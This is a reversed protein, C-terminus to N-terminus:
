RPSNLNKNNAIKMLMKLNGSVNKTFLVNAFYHRFKKREFQSKNYNLNVPNLERKYGDWGTLWIPRQVNPNFEGRDATIDWFQNIRYKQEVKEFAIDISGGNVSPYNLRAFPDNKPSININLLGSVQETNYVVLSDFNADLVHFRDIGEDDYVYAEMFYEISRLTNVAQGSDLVYEVQFPYDVGYYNCYKDTVFNHRWFTNGKTSIFNLRSPMSLDPHWDHFSLWADIKPDYSITWSVDNFFRPDGLLIKTFGNVSFRIGGNYTVVTNAPLDKRLEYDKKCFYLLQDDNDYISQCGVGVVPNDIVEFDPFDQTIRFPLFKAFWWRMGKASLENLGEVMSFIKGQNQSIWYLGVPTNLISFRDQCSAYEYPEDTNVVSQLPQNFLAGDGITLKTGIDTQLTETGQIMVPSDNEFLIIAGSKGISKVATVRSKFDKYNNQLFVTWFDKNSELNDPLSYSIRNPLYQYCLASVIPNYNRDQMNGWSITNSYLRSISLSPNIKFYNGAKIINTDFLESLSDLIPFFKEPDTEGWDRQDVNIESEVFFDRVGSQFLYFYANKRSFRLPSENSAADGFNVLGQWVGNAELAGDLNNTNAPTDWGTPDDFSGLVSFMFGEIDYKTLNAWFKPYLGLYRLTYDFDTGDPVNYLWDAFYFFTNKETYRGIYTDGGFLIPSQYTELFITVVNDTSIATNPIPVNADRNGLQTVPCPVPIQRISDLQGYQNRYRLKMGGYYCSATSKFSNKYTEGWTVNPSVNNGISNCSTDQLSPNTINRDVHLAVTSSRYLNNVRRNNFTNFQNDLYGSDLIYSRKVSNTNGVSDRHLIGHSVYRVAYQRYRVMAYILELNADTATSTYNFFTVIGAATKFVSPLLDLAAQENTMGRARGLVGIGFDTAVYEQYLVNTPEFLGTVSNALDAGLLDTLFGLAAVTLNTGNITGSAAPSPFAGITPAYTVGPTALTTAQGINFVRPGDMTQVTKGKMALAAEGMGIVLATILSLDTLIKNKPHGPVDEFNGTVNNTAGVETYLRFEKGSLYPSYFSTDPSHFTFYSKEVYNETVSTLNSGNGNVETISLTPDLINGADADFLYNSVPNYPYNPYLGDPDNAAPTEYRRMNNIIGKAVISKNGQRSGRLIEYGVIGPVVKINGDGDRYVPPKINEFQVGIINIYDATNAGTATARSYQASNNIIDEPMKHHRIPKGCLDFNTDYTGSLAPDSTANWVDPMQDPYTETSEWYAMTGKVLPIGGDQATTGLPVPGDISATNDIEFVREFPDSYISSGPIVSTENGVAVRGPIHYSSSKDGTNYVWRIWFSYVEDRMYGTVYGNNKYYNSPYRNVVWKAGIQNALPQYNFDYKTSPGIKLLYAATEYIADSKEYTDTRLSILELPVTPLSEDINDLVITSNSVTNYIGIRRAVTAQDIITVVVLEFESFSGTDLNSINIEIAGAINSHNFISVVNSPSSYDGYREGNITYGIVAFYSGNFINGGTSGVSATICPTTVLKSLRIEECNLTNLNTCITCSDITQCEKNWAVGPWLENNAYYNNGLYMSNPWLDPNGLNILRDPNKGDAMYISWSCDFNEKAAGTILHLTSLGLCPDNVITRYSCDEENFLGIESNTNDTSGIAWYQKFLHIRMIITYPAQGCAINAPENGLVGLDGEVSNNVANRAYPWSNEPDFHEDFDRVLGKAFAGTENSSTNYQQGSQKKAM